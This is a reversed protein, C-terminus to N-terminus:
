SNMAGFLFVVEPLYRHTQINELGTINSGRLNWTNTTSHVEQQVM